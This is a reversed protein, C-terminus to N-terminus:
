KYFSPFDSTLAADKSLFMKINWKHLVHLSTLQFKVKKFLHGSVSMYVNALYLPGCFTMNILIGHMRDWQM